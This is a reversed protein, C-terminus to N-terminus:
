VQLGSMDNRTQKIQMFASTHVCSNMTQCPFAGSWKKASSTVEQFRRQDGPLPGCCLFLGPRTRKLRKILNIQLQFLLLNVFCCFHSLVCSPLRQLHRAATAGLLKEAGVHRCSYTYINPKKKGVIRGEMVFLGPAPPAIKKKKNNNTKLGSAAM